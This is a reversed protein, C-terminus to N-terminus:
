NSGQANLTRMDSEYGALVQQANSRQAPSTSAHIESFFRCGDRMFNEQYSRYVSNPSKLSRDLLDRMATKEGALSVLAQGTSKEVALRAMTNIADQQRRQREALFLTSEFETSDVLRGVLSIQKADLRGYLMESRSIALDVRKERLQMPTIQIFEERYDANSQTFKSQMKALQAPKLTVALTRAIPLAQLSLTTLQARVDDLLVCAQAQSIEGPLQTQIKQLLAIYLPLQTQRHWTQLQALDSKIQLSQVGTFDVYGDMYWYALNPSQNYALKVASCAPLLLAVALLGM